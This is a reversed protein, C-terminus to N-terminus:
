GRSRFYLIHIFNPIVCCSIYWWGGSSVACNYDNVLDNDVDLTTFKMGNHYTLSDGFILNISVWQLIVM